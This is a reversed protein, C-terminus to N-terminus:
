SCTSAHAAKGPPITSTHVEFHSLSTTSGELVHKRLRTEEQITELKEFEYVRPPLSDTKQATVCSATFILAYTLILKM